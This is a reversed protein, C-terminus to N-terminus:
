DFSYSTYSYGCVACQHFEKAEGYHDEIEGASYMTHGSKKCHQSPTHGAEPSAKPVNHTRDTFTGSAIMEKDFDDFLERADPM